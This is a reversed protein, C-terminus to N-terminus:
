IDKACRFGVDEATMDPTAYQRAAGRFFYSLAYHGVGGGGGRIVKYKKGFAANKEGSGPYADYWDEVWEWANGAMDYAGYPSKNGPFSGVAAIGEENDSNEGTNTINPDWKDGWPYELGNPGRAAKEWEAESPLRRGRWQCYAYADQWTVGTVALKDMAQQRKFMAAILATKDMADTDMDLKFHNAAINRLTAIDMAEAQSRALGYGNFRWAEPVHGRGKAKLLFQKYQGNSVEYMDMMFAGLQVKREPHENVYLPEEFGYQQQLGEKDVKNSGMIFEGAPVMVMPANDDGAQQAASVSNKSCAALSAMAAMLLAQSVRGVMNLSWHRFGGAPHPAEGRVLFM